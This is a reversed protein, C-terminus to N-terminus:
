EANVPFEFVVTKGTDNAVQIIIIGDGRKKCSKDKKKKFFLIYLKFLKGTLKKYVSSFSDIKYDVANADKQDLFVKIIKSGNTLQRTRKGVVETPYVIDELIKEHVNTLTRSTPRPFRQKSKPHPKPM